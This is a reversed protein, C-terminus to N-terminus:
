LTAEAVIVFLEQSDVAAQGLAVLLQEPVAAKQPLCLLGGGSLGMLKLLELNHLSLLDCVQLLLQMGTLPPAPAHTQARSSLCHSQYGGPESEGARAEAPAEVQRV